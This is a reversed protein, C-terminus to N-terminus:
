RKATFFSRVAMLPRSVVGLLWWVGKWPSRLADLWSQMKAAKHQAGFRTYLDRAKEWMERAAAGDGRQEALIGLNAYNIAMGEPRGLRENIELAERYKAEAGDLENRSLLVNGLHTYSNAMWEPLDIWKSIELSKRHMAEAGDFDDRLELMRGFRSYCRMIDQPRGAREFSALGRYLMAEAEELKGRMFLVGGLNEYCMAVGRDNGIQKYNELAERYLAEAGDLDNRKVLVNGLNGSNDAVGEARCIRKNVELAENYMAEASGFDCRDFLVNGLECLSIALWKPDNEALEHVRKYSWEAEKLEGRLRHIHGLRNIADIDDPRLSLIRKLAAEAEDIRGTVYLVAALERDLAIAEEDLRENIASRAPDLRKREAALYDAVDGPNEGRLIRGATVGGRESDRALREVVAILSGDTGPDDVGGMSPRGARLKQLLREEFQDLDAHTLQNSQNGEIRALTRTHEGQTEIIRDAKGDLANLAEIRREDLEKADLMMRILRDLDKGIAADNELQRGMEDRVFGAFEAFETRDSALRQAIGEPDGDGLFDRVTRLRDCAARFDAPADEPLGALAKVLSGHQKILQELWGRIEDVNDDRKKERAGRVAAAGGAFAAIVGLIGAAAPAGFTLGTAALLLPEAAAVGTLSLAGACFRGLISTVMGAM